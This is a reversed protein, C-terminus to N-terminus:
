GWMVTVHILASKNFDLSPFCASPSPQPSTELVDRGQLVCVLSRQSLSAKHVLLIHPSLGKARMDHLEVVSIEKLAPLGASM